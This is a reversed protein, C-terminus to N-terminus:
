GETTRSRIAAAYADGAHLYLRNHPAPTVVQGERTSTGVEHEECFKACEEREMERGRQEAALLAAEIIDVGNEWDRNYARATEIAQQTIHEPITTM